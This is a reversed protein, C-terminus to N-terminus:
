SNDGWGADVVKVLIPFGLLRPLINEGETFVKGGDSCGDDMIVWVEAVFGALYKELLENVTSGERVSSVGGLMMDAMLLGVVKCIFGWVVDEM